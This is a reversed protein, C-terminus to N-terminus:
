FLKRPKKGPSNLGAQPIAVCADNSALAAPYLGPIAWDTGLCTQQLIWFLGQAM